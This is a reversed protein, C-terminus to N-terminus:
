RSAGSGSCMATPLLALSVYTDVERGGSHRAVRGDKNTSGEDQHEEPSAINSNSTNKSAWRAEIIVLAPCVRIGPGVLVVHESKDAKPLAAISRAVHAKSPHLCWVEAERMESRSSGVVVAAAQIRGVDFPRSPHIPIFRHFSWTCYEVVLESTAAATLDCVLSCLCMASRMFALCVRISREAEEIDPWAARQTPLREGQQLRSPPVRQAM